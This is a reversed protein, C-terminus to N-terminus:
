HILGSGGTQSGGFQIKGIHSSVSLNTTVEIYKDELEKACEKFRYMIHRGEIVADYTNEFPFGYPALLMQMGQQTPVNQLSVVDALVDKEADYRGLVIEGSVLKVMSIEFAAM